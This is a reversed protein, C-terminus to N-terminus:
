GELDKVLVLSQAQCVLNGAANSCRGLLYALDKDPRLRTIEVRAAIPEGIYAAAPFHLKQKLWNTGRGPLRTGLLDSFMGCLLPGPLIRSEFGNAKAYNLDFFLPNDDGTLRAYDDLDESSFTRNVEAAQGIRLRKLSKAGEPGRAEFSEDVGPFGDRSGPLLLLAKGECAKKGDPLFIDTKMELRHAEPFMSTVECQVTIETDAYTPHQFMLEQHIPVTGPGPFQTSFVRSITSYLLMGHAVTKGFRTRASFAPDVHIPNHDKSLAAFRDFDEQTFRCSFTEVHGLKPNM